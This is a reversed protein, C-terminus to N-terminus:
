FPRQLLRVLAPGLIVVLLAPFIFFVLPFVMKVPTQNAQEQARQRRLVRMQESQIRLVQAIPTGLQDAQIIAAVFSALDKVGSRNAMDRLAAQRSKGLRVEVMSRGFIRSIEKDWKEAVKAMAADFGIGAEVCITLLDLADPLDRQIEQQRNRAKLDLWFIPLYFGLVLGTLSLLIVAGSNAGLIGFVFFFFTAGALASLVRMGLLEVGTWGYPNGALELKLNSSEAFYRPTFRGLLRAVGRMLPILVRTTFPQSLEIDELMRPEAYQKVLADVRDTRKFSSALAAFVSFIGLAFLVSFLGIM